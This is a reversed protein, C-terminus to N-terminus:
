DFRSRARLERRASSHPRAARRRETTDILFLAASPFKIEPTILTNKSCFFVELLKQLLLSKICGFDQKL